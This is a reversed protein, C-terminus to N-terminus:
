HFKNIKSNKMRMKLNRKQRKARKSFLIYREKVLKHYLTNYKDLLASPSINSPSNAEQTLSGRKPPTVEEGM